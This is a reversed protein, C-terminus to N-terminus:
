SILVVVRIFCSIVSACDAAQEMGNCSQLTEREKGTNSVTPLTPLKLTPSLSSICGLTKHFVGSTGFNTNKFQIIFKLPNTRTRSTKRFANFHVIYKINYFM